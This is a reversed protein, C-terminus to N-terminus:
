RPKYPEWIFDFAGGHTLGCRGTCTGRNEAAAPLTPFTGDYAASAVEKPPGSDDLSVTKYAGITARMDWRGWTGTLDHCLRCMTGFLAYNATGALMCKGDVVVTNGCTGAAECKNRTPDGPCGPDRPSGCARRSFYADLWGTNPLFLEQTDWAMIPNVGVLFGGPGLGTCSRNQQFGTLGRFWPGVRGLMTTLSTTIDPGCKREQAGQADQAQAPGGGGDAPVGGDPAGAGPDPAPQGGGDDPTQRQVVSGAGSAGAVAAAAAGKLRPASGQQVVHALEHSLLRRGATTAPQYRGQGFVVHDGVAYALANIAQCSQGAEGDSHVRVRSFDHGFRPEMFSRTAPDLPRGPSGIVEHVIPPAGGAAAEPGASKAQVARKDEDECASCKRSIGPRVSTMAPAPDPLRMVHDAIRDAESELPDNAAGVVLKPLLTGAPVSLKPPELAGLPNGQLTPRDEDQCAACKRRIVPPAATIPPARDPMSLAQEAVADAEHEFAGSTPQAM